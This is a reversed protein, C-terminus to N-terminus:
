GGIIGFIKGFSRPHWYIQGNDNFDLGQPLGYFVRSSINSPDTATLTYSFSSGFTATATLPSSITRPGTVAGYSVLTQSSKQNDYEAKIWDATRLTSSIRLEDIPGTWPNALNPGSGLLLSGVGNTVAQISSSANSLWAPTAANFYVRGRGGEPTSSDPYFQITLHHWNNNSWASPSPGAIRQRDGSGELWLHETGWSGLSWGLVSNEEKNNLIFKQQPSGSGTWKVWFTATFSSTGANGADVGFSVYDNTGDFYLGDGVLGAQNVAGGYVQGHFSNVGSDSVFNGTSIDDLHWVGEYGNSWVPDNTAYDPTIATGAKGWVANIVTGSGSISHANVWFSSTGTTNWDTIEYPLEKGNSAYFRLDGGTPVGDGDEDLFGNYSFGSISSNFEVLVPFDTLTSSGTYGSLTLDMRYPFSSPDSIIVTYIKSVSVTSGGATTGEAKITINQTTEQSPTGQIQVTSGDYIMEGTAVNLSM